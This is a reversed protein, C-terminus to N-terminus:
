IKGVRVAEGLAHDPAVVHRAEIGPVPGTLQHVLHRLGGAPTDDQRVEYSILLHLVHDIVRFLSM